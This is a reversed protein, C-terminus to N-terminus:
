ETLVWLRGVGAKCRALVVTFQRKSSLYETSITNSISNIYIIGENLNKLPLPSLLTSYLYRHYMLRLVARLRTQRSDSAITEAVVAPAILTYALLM